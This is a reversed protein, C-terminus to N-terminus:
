SAGPLQVASTAEPHEGGEWGLGWASCCAAPVSPGTLHGLPDSAGGSPKTPPPGHVAPLVLCAWPAESSAGVQDNLPAQIFGWEEPRWPDEPFPPAKGAWSM